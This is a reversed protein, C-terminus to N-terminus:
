KTCSPACDLTITSDDLAGDFTENVPIALRLFISRNSQGTSVAMWCRSATAIVECMSISLTLCSGRASWSRTLKMLLSIRADDLDCEITAADRGIPSARTSGIAGDRGFSPVLDLLLLDTQSTRAVEFKVQLAVCQMLYNPLLVVWGLRLKEFQLLFTSAVLLRFTSVQLKAM